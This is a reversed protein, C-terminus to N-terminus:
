NEHRIGLPRWDGDFSKKDKSVVRYKNMDNGDGDAILDFIYIKAEDISKFSNVRNDIYKDEIDQWINNSIRRQVKFLKNM